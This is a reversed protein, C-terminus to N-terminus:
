SNSRVWTDLAHCYPKTHFSDNRGYKGIDSSKLEELNTDLHFSPWRRWVPWQRGSISRRCVGESKGPSGSNFFFTWGLVPLSPESPSHIYLEVRGKVKASSTPPPPHHHDIGRRPREAGPLSEISRAYSAPHAGPGTPVPASFRGWDVPTRDGFRRARLSDSYRGVWQQMGANLGPINIETVREFTYAQLKPFAARVGSIRLEEHITISHYMRSLFYSHKQQPFYYTKQISCYNTYYRMRPYVHLIIPVSPWVRSITRIHSPDRIRSICPPSQFRFGATRCTRRGYMEQTHTPIVELERVHKVGPSCMILHQEFSTILPLEVGWVGDTRDDRTRYMTDSLWVTRNFRSYTVSTTLLVATKICLIKMKSVQVLFSGIGTAVRDLPHTQSRESVPIAPEFGTPPAHIGTEQPHQTSDPLPRRTSGIVQGSSDYRTHHTQTHDHLRSLSLDQWVLPQRTM